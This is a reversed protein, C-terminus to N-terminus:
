LMEVEGGVDVGLLVWGVEREEVMEVEDLGALRLRPVRRCWSRGMVARAKGDFVLSKEEASSEVRAMVRVRSQVRSEDMRAGM